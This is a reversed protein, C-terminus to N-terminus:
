AFPTGTLWNAIRSGVILAKQVFLTAVNNAIRPDILQPRAMDNDATLIVSALFGATRTSPKIAPATVPQPDEEEMNPVNGHHIATAAIPTIQKSMARRANGAVANIRDPM